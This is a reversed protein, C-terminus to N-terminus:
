KIKEGFLYLDHKINYDIVGKNDRLEMLIKGLNNYGVYKDGVNKCGWFFSREGKHFTTDEVIYKDGTSELLKVFEPNQEYKLKLVYKMVDICIEDWNQVRYESYKKANVFCKKCFMANKHEQIQKQIDDQGSFRLAIYLHESTIFFNGNCNIPYERSMNSFAGYAENVKRFPIVSNLNYEEM